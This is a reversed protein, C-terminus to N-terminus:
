KSVYYKLSNDGDDNYHSILKNLALIAIFLRCLIIVRWDNVFPLEGTM